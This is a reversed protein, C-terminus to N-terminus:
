YFISEVDESKIITGEILVLGKDEKGHRKIEESQYNFEKEAEEKTQFKNTTFGDYGLNQIIFYEM